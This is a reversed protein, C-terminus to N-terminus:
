LGKLCVADLRKMLKKVGFRKALLRFAHLVDGTSQEHTKADKSANNQSQQKKAKKSLAAKRYVEFATSQGNSVIVEVDDTQVVNGSSKSSQAVKVGFKAANM